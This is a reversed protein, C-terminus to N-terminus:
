EPIQVKVRVQVPAAKTAAILPISHLMCGTASEFEQALTTLQKALADAAAQVEAVTM